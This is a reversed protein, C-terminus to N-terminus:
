RTWATGDISNPALALWRGRVSGTGRADNEDLHTIILRTTVHRLLARDRYLERAAAFEARLWRVGGRRLGTDSALLRRGREDVLVAVLQAHEPLTWCSSDVIPLDRVLQRIAPDLAILPADTGSWHFYWATRGGWMGFVFIRGSM